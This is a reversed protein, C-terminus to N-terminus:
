SMYFTPSMWILPVLWNILGCCLIETSLTLFCAKSQLLVVFGADVVILRRWLGPSQLAAMFPTKFVLCFTLRIGCITLLWPLSLMQSIHVRLTSKIALTPNGLLDSSHSERTILKLKIAWFQFSHCNSSCFACAQISSNKLLAQVYSSCIILYWYGM